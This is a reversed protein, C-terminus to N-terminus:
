NPTQKFTSTILEADVGDVIKCQGIGTPLVFKLKGFESKKDHRMIEIVRQWDLNTLFEEPLEVPLGLINHFNIQQEPFNNKVLQLKQALKAAYISGIAVAQGHKIKFNSLIEFAHAFTHGYNLFARKGSLEFEDEGVIKAKIECCKAVIVRLIEADRLRIRQANEKLLMFLNEDLSVAYKATEGLGCIFDAESLTRLVDTDILVGCPQYFGGVMNKAEPLDIGVKGGVSSDVQALLTTPVQLFKIGRAFTMAIFGGLDGVVGGGVAILIGKRDMGAALVASWIQAATEICKSAEGAAIVEVRCSVGVLEVADAVADAYGIRRVNDDTLIVARSIPKLPLIFDAVDALNKSGIKIEYGRQTIDHLQVFVSEQTV